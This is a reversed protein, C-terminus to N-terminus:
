LVHTHHGTKLLFVTMKRWFVSLAVLADCVDFYRELLYCPISKVSETGKSFLPRFFTGFFRFIACSLLFQSTSRRSFSINQVYDPVESSFVLGHLLLLFGTSIRLFLSPSQSFAAANGNRKAMGDNSTQDAQGCFSTFSSATVAAHTLNDRECIRDNMTLLILARM